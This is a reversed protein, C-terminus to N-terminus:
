VSRFKMVWKHEPRIIQRGKTGTPTGKIKNNDSADERVFPHTIYILYNNLMHNQVNNALTVKDITDYKQAAM